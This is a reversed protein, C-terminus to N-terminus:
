LPRFYAIFEIVFSYRFVYRKKMVYNRDMRKYPDRFTSTIM